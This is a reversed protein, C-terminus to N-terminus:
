GPQEAGHRSEKIYSPRAQRESPAKERQAVVRSADWALIGKGTVKQEGPDAQQVKQQEDEPLEQCDRRALSIRHCFNQTKM